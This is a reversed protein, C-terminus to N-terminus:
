IKNLRYKFKIVISKLLNYSRILLINNDKFNNTVEKIEDDYFILQGDKTDLTTVHSDNNNNYEDKIMPCIDGILGEFLQITEETRLIKFYRKSKM